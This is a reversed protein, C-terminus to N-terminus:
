YLVTMIIIIVCKQLHRYKFLKIAKIMIFKIDGTPGLLTSMIITIIYM